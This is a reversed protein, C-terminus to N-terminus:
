SFLIEIWVLDLPWTCSCFEQRYGPGTINTHQSFGVATLAQLHLFTVSKSFLHFFNFFLALDEQPKKSVPLKVFVKGLSKGM